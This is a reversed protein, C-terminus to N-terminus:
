LWKWKPLTDMQAPSLPSLSLGPTIGEGEMPQREGRIFKRLSYPDV